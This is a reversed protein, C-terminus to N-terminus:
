PKTQSFAQITLIDLM